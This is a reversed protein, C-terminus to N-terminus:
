GFAAAAAFRYWIVMLTIFSSVWVAFRYPISNVLIYVAAHVARLGVFTWALVVQAEDSHKTVMMLLCVVYFLTPVQMLNNFTRAPRELREVSDSPKNDKFYEVPVLGRIVAANRVVLTLLWVVFTVVVLGLMPRVLAEPAAPAPSGATTFILWAVALALITGAAGYSRVLSGGARPAASARANAQM